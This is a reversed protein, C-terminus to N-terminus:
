AIVSSREKLSVPLFTDNILIREHREVDVTDTLQNADGRFSATGRAAVQLEPDAAFM